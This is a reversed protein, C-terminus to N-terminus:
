PCVVVKLTSADPHSAAEIAEAISSLPFRHTTLSEVKVGGTKLLDMAQDQLTIDSSYSGILKKELMCVTGMDIECYDEMKTQAFLLVSGGLRVAAIADPIVKTSAVAVIASDAGRGETLELVTASDGCPVVAFVAGLRQAMERRSAVPDVAIVIGGAKSVLQTFLLGIPGQGYIVVTDFPQLQMRQTAKLCTNLPEAFSATEYSLNEPIRITGLKVSRPMVRIFEAFGGGAPEFGATTLTEKYEPCQAYDKRDCYHCIERMCPVHHNVVVRDGVKFSTGNGGVAVVDGAIEHGYIRPPPQLGLHIKKLDTGCVGCVRVRVLLEGPFIEPVPVEELVVQGKGRYVGAFM